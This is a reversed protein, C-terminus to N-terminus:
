RWFVADFVVTGHQWTSLSRCKHRSVHQHNHVQLWSGNQSVCFGAEPLRRAYNPHSGHHPALMLGYWGGHIHAPEVLGRKLLEGLASKEIDGFSIFANESSVVLSLYNDIGRMGDSLKQVEERYKAPIHDFTWERQPRQDVRKPLDDDLEDNVDDMVAPSLHEHETEEPGVQELDDRQFERWQAYAEDLQESLTPNPGEPDAAMRDALSKLADLWTEYIKGRATDVRRPPWHVVWSAGNAIFRDGRYLPTHTVSAAEQWTRKLTILNVPETDRGSIFSRFTMLAARLQSELNNDATAWGTPLGPYLLRLPRTKSPQRSQYEKALGLFGGWHDIDFHTVVITTLDALRGGLHLAAAADPPTVVNSRPHSGCDVLTLARSEHAVSVATCAGDGVNIVEILM